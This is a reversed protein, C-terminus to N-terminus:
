PYLLHLVCQGIFHFNKKSVVHLIMKILDQKIITDMLSILEQGPKEILHFKIKYNSSGLWLRIARAVLAM